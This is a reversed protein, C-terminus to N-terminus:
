KKKELLLRCVLNRGTEHARLHTYSVAPLTYGRRGVKHEGICTDLSGHAFPSAAVSSGILAIRVPHRQKNGLVGATGRVAHVALPCLRKVGSSVYADSLYVLSEKVDTIVFVDVLHKDGATVRQHYAFLSQSVDKLLEAAYRM